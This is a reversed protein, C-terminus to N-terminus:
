AARRGIELELHRAVAHEAAPLSDFAEATDFCHMFDHKRAAVGPYFFDLADLIRLKDAESFYTM